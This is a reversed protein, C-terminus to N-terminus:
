KEKTIKKNVLDGDRGISDLVRMKGESQKRYYERNKELAKIHRINNEIMGNLFRKMQNDHRKKFREDKKDFKSVRVVEM